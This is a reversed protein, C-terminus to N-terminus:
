AIMNAEFHLQILDSGTGIPATALGHHKPWVPREKTKITCPRSSQTPLPTSQKNNMGCDKKPLHACFTPQLKADSLAAFTKCCNTSCCKIALTKFSYAQQEPLLLHCSWKSHLPKGQDGLDQWSFHRLIHCLSAHWTTPQQEVQRRCM